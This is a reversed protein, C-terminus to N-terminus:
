DYAADRPHYGDRPPTTLLHLRPCPEFMLLPCALEYVTVDTDRLSPSVAEAALAEETTPPPRKDSTFSWGGASAALEYRGSALSRFLTTYPFLTSRPPRRIM